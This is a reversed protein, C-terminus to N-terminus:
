KIIVSPDTDSVMTNEEKNLQIDINGTKRNAISYGPGKFFETIEESPRSFENRDGYRYGLGYHQILYVADYVISMIGLALKPVNLNQLFLSPGQIFCDIVMQCLSLIGGFLDQFVAVMSWGRTSKRFWNQYIQPFARLNTQVIKANGMQKFADNTPLQFCCVGVAIIILTTIGFPLYRVTNKKRPYYFIQVVEFSVMFMSFCTFVFDTTHVQHSYSANYFHGYITYSLYFYFATWNMFLYDMSVGDGTKTKYIVYSKMIFGLTWLCIGVWGVVENFILIFGMKKNLKDFKNYASNM